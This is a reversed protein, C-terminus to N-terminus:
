TDLVEIARPTKPPDADLAALRTVNREGRYDHLEQLRVHLSNERLLDLLDRGLRRDEPGGPAAARDALRARRHRALVDPPEAFDIAPHDAIGLELGMVKAMTHRHFNELLMMVKFLDTCEQSMRTDVRGLDVRADPRSLELAHHREILLSRDLDQGFLVHVREMNSSCEFTGLVHLSFLSRFRVPPGLPIRVRTEAKLPFHGKPDKPRGM